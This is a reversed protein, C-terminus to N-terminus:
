LGSCRGPTSKYIRPRRMGPFGHVPGIHAIAASYVSLSVDLLRGPLWALSDKRTLFVSIVIALVVALAALAAWCLLFRHLADAFM